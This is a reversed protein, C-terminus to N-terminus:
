LHFLCSPPQLLKLQMKYYFLMYRQDVLAMDMYNYVNMVLPVRIEYNGSIDSGKYFHSLIFNQHNVGPYIDNKIKKIEEDIEKNINQKKAKKSRHPPAFFCISM